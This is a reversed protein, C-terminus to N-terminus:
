GDVGCLSFLQKISTLAIRPTFVFYRHISNHFFRAMKSATGASEALLGCILVANSHRSLSSGARM